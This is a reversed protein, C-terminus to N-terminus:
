GSFRYSFFKIDWILLNRIDSNAGHYLLVLGGTFWAILLASALIWYIHQYVTHKQKIPTTSYRLIKQQKIWGFQPRVLFIFGLLFGSIFGGIHAFNDVQPFLGLALNIVIIFILIFLAAFKYVYISWNTLLESLMSGLLGFLAGSAGVSIDNPKLFLASMLSGGFGSIAYLLGIKAFGFEQELRIGIFLLSLMNALIHILGAHLWNCTILRWGQHGHVVETVDLAGMKELKDNGRTPHVKVEITTALPTEKGMEISDEKASIAEAREYLIPKEEDADM